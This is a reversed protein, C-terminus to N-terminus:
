EEKKKKKKAKYLNTQSRADTGKDKPTSLFLSRKYYTRKQLWDWAIWEMRGNKVPDNAASKASWKRDLIM